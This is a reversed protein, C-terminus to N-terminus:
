PGAVCRVFYKTSSWNWSVTGNYFNMFWKFDGPSNAHSTSTWYEKSKTNPFAKENISPIKGHAYDASSQLERVNPLRWNSYGRYQSKNLNSCSNVAENWTFIDTSSTNNCFPDPNIGSKLLTCRIWVLGTTNDRVIGYTHNITYSIGALLSTALLLSSFIIIISIMQNKKM